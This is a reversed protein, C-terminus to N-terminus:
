FSFGNSVVQACWAATSWGLSFAPRGVLEGLVPIALVVGAALLVAGTFQTDLQSM